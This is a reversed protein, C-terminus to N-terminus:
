RCDALEVELRQNAHMQLLRGAREKEKDCQLDHCRM